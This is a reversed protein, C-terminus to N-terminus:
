MDAVRKHLWASYITPLHCLHKFSIDHEMLWSDTQWSLASFSVYFAWEPEAAITIKPRSEASHWHRCCFECHDSILPWAAEGRGGVADFGLTSSAPGPEAQRRHAPSGRRHPVLVLLCSSTRCPRTLFWSLTVLPSFLLNIHQLDEYKLSRMFVSLSKRRCWARNSFLIISVNFTKNCLVKDPPLLMSKFMSFSHNQLM